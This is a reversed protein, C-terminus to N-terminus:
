HLQHKLDSLQDHVNTIAQAVQPTVAAQNRCVQKAEDGISELEDVCQRIRSEDHSQIAQQVKGSERDLKEICDKLQPPAGSEAKLTQSAQGIAQKISTFRREVESAQMMEAEV